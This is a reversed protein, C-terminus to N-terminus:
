FNMNYLVFFQNFNYDNPNDAGLQSQFSQYQLTLYIGEKFTYKMGAALLQETDDAVFRGPFDRVDNFEEILPVYDSGEASLLKAGLLLEFNTFLEVDLGLDILNSTLDVQEVELGDRSAQEYQYGMTLRLKNKWGAMKHFNVNAAARLLTYNKLEFTGSGRIEELLAADVRANLVEDDDGYELGLKLGRRNPTADGYPMTNSYRPDYPMLRDFLQFTYMARDRSLDFLSPMRINRDQGIRNYYTKDSELNVRRSQAAISFFDPGIDIFSASISLKQPKLELKAGIELFTDDEAATATSDQGLDQIDELDSMGAEGLIHIAYNKKELVTIDYNLSMVTNRIGSKVAPDAGSQLDDFTHAINFGFDAKLGLSDSFRQTSFQLQGGSTLRTPITFFDTGRIRAIFASADMDRLVSGFTLGFDLKAGQLRRTNEDTYFNEYGIVEKLPQMITPENVVTEENPMFFTYPTMAVDMDGVRYEIADAIIGRAWLERVEVSMGSGFFGGFENRLRLISQVETKDNPTANFALDLLFEGDTLQRITTSDADLINGDIGTQALFARGLGNFRIKPGEEEQESAKASGDQAMLTNLQLTFVSGVILLQLFFQKM